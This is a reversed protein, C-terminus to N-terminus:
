ATTQSSVYGPDKTSTPPPLGQGLASSGDHKSVDMSSMDAGQQWFFSDTFHHMDEGTTTEMVKNSLKMLYGTVAGTGLAMALTIGFSYAQYVAQVHPEHPLTQWTANLPNDPPAIDPILVMAICSVISGVIGPMGHLNHVGCTDHLGIKVLLYPQLKQYGFVSVMGSVAGVGAAGALGINMHCVSGIGVGGALTANQVDTPSFRDSIFGSLSFSALCSACLSIVTNVMCRNGGIPDDVFAAGNFSPWYLWLFVTGILSLLDSVFSNSGYGKTDNPPGLVYAVAVGFYAGFLHVLITGGTDVTDFNKLVICNRNVQFFISELVALLILQSPTTKGIICGVSILIVAAAFNGDMLLWMDVVATDGDPIAPALLVNLQVCLCTLVFTFGVAGLGYKKLFAMLYGFGVLMMLAVGTYMYYARPNFDNGYKATSFGGILAIQIFFLMVCTIQTHYVAISRADAM